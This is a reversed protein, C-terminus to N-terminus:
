GVIGRIERLRVQGVHGVRNAHPLEDLAGDDATGHGIDQGDLGLM